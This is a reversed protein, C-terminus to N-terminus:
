IDRETSPFKVCSPSLEALTSLILVVRSFSGTRMDHLYGTVAQFSGSVYFRFAIMVQLSTPLAHPRRTDFSNMDDM